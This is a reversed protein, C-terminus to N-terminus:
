GIFCDVHLAQHIKPSIEVQPTFEGVTQQSSQALGGQQKVQGNRKEQQQRQRGVTELVGAPAMAAAAREDAVGAASDTGPQGIKEQRNETDGGVHQGKKQRHVPVHNVPVLIPVIRRRQQVLCEAPESKDDGETRRSADGLTEHDARPQGQGLAIAANEPLLDGFEGEM